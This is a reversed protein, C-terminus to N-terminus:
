ILSFNTPPWSMLLGIERLQSLFMKILIGWYRQWNGQVSIFVDNDIERLQSLFMTTLKGSSPHCSNKKKYLIRFQLLLFVIKTMKERCPSFCRQWRRGQDHDMISNNSIGRGRGVENKDASPPKQPVPRLPPSTSLCSLSSFAVM